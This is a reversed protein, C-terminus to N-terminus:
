PTLAGGEDKLGVGTLGLRRAETLLAALKAAAEDHGIGVPPRVNSICNRESDMRGARPEYTLYIGLSDAASLGPREGVLVAVFQAGLAEGIEDGLAVRAQTAIVIPAVAWTPLAAITARAVAAAHRQVALPSLGDALVIALDAGSPSLKSAEGEALTRGLDPRQLYTARDAAASRLAITALGDLETRLATVDLAAHVADRARAHALRLELQDHTTMADGARGLGIRAPTHCRLPAWPDGVPAAPPEPRLPEPVATM